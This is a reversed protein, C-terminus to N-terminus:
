YQYDKWTIHKADNHHFNQPLFAARKENREFSLQFELKKSKVSITKCQPWLKYISSWENQLIRQNFSNLQPKM